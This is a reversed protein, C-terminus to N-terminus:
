TPVSCCSNAWFCNQYARKYVYYKITGVKALFFLGLIWPLKERVVRKKEVTSFPDLSDSTYKYIIIRNCLSVEWLSITHLTHRSEYLPIFRDRFTVTSTPLSANKQIMSTFTHSSGALAASTYPLTMTMVGCPGSTHTLRAAPGQPKAILLRFFAHM